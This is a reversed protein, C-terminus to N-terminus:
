LALVRGRSSRRKAFSQTLGQPAGRESGQASPFLKNVLLALGIWVQFRKRFSHWYRDLINRPLRTYVDRCHGPREVVAVADVRLRALVYSGDCCTQVITRIANRATQRRPSRM